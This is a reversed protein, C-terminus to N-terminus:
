RRRRAPRTSRRAAGRAGGHDRGRGGRAGAPVTRARHGRAARSRAPDVRARPAHRGRHRRPRPFAEADRDRRRRAPRARLGGGDRRCAASGRRVVPHQDGPQAPQQERRGGARLGRPRRDRAVGRRRDPGGARGADPRRGRRVGHGQSVADRRRHAHRRRVRLGGVQPAARTALAQLRNLTAAAAHAQGLTVSGYTANLLVPPVPESAGFVLFGGVHTTTVLSQLRDFADSDTPMFSSEFSPMLLQGSRRTSPSRRWRRTWGAARPKTSPRIPPPSFHRASRSRPRAHSRACPRITVDPNYPSLGRCGENRMRTKLSLGEPAQGWTGCIDESSCRRCAGADTATCMTVTLSM